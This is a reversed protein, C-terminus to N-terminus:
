RAAGFCYLVGDQSGIVLTGEAAAPSATLPAGANFEWNKKGTALDIEYLLGDSSGVFVRGASILPSSDVRARTLFNWVEKGTARNLCHVMKDRGGLVVFDGSLAASSYYPFERAPNRYTWIRARKKLDIGLVENGFTGVFAQEGRIAASAGAYEDLPLAFLEKGTAADIARFNGDCGSVFVRGKDFAPTCHVPGQTEYKWVLAGTNASLCYLYQDYSGIYIRGDAWNPSSKIEGETKYTWRTKGTAADVAHLVGDLDGVYVVGGHV